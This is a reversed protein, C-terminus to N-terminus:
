WRQARPYSCCADDVPLRHYAADVDAETPYLNPDFPM